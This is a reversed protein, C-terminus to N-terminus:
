RLTKNQQQQIVENSTNSKFQLKKFHVFKFLPKNLRVIELTAIQKTCHM